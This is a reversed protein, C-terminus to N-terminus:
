GGGSTDLVVGDGIEENISEILDRVADTSMLGGEPLGDINITIQQPAGTLGGTASAVGFSSDPVGVPTGGSTPVASFSPTTGGGFRTSKIAAIEAIGAAAAVAAMAFNLPFPLKLMQTIAESTNIIASGIAAAKNIKFMTKNSTAVGATMSTLSGLVSKVKQKQTLEEWKQRDKMGKVSIKTMAAEFQQALILRQMNAEEDLLIGAQRGAEIIEFRETLEEVLVQRETLGAERIRELKKALAENEREIEANQAKEFAEEQAIAQALAADQTLGKIPEIVAETYQREVKERLVGTNIDFMKSGAESGIEELEFSLDQLIGVAESFEGSLTAVVAAALAGIAEGVAKFVAKVFIGASAVARMATELGEFSMETEETEGALFAFENIIDTAIQIVARALPLWNEGVELSLAEFASDLRKLDGALNDNKINAQEVATNTGTLAVELDDVTQRERILAEAVFGSREGFIEKTEIATLEAKALNDLATNIGVLSPNFDNNGQTTLKVLISRLKTGADSGKIGVTAMTQLLANTEEFSVGAGFAAVGANKLAESMDPIESAGKQAGAALVNIFREAQDADAGFQNLSEGLALAAEPLTTGSAEALILAAETVETLAAANELLDPKASAVLKFAEAAQSASFTTTAGLRKSQETLFGMTETIAGTIAQLDSLSSTFQKTRQFVQVSFAAGMAVGALAGASGM